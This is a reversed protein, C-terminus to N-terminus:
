GNDEDPTNSEANQPSSDASDQFLAPWHQDSELEEDVQERDMGQEALAKQRTELGHKIAQIKANIEKQPDVFSWRRGRWEPANFKDFKTAPLNLAQNMLQTELWAEFVPTIFNDILWRQEVKWQDREQNEGLRGSSFNVSALDNALNHYSIGLGAAIGRLVQKEFAEFQSNPHQPDWKQVEWGMPLEEWSGPEADMLKNGDSDEPGTYNEPTKKTFFGMKSAATRAAVLEAEEYGGLMNLRTMTSALWPVGMAQGIRHKKFVHIINGAPVREHTRRGGALGRGREGPHDELLHYAIRRHFRDFEVGMRIKRGNGLDKDLEHDLRDSEIPQLAFLFPNNFGRIIRVLANGDRAASEIVLDQLEKWTDEGTVTCNAAKGWQKWSETIRENARTDESGDPDRVKMELQIGKDGVVNSKLMQLYRVAYDNNRALERSRNRLRKLDRQIEANATLTATVWDNTLRTTTAGDYKRKRPAPPIRNGTPGYLVPATTAM